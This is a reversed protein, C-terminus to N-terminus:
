PSRVNRLALSCFNGGDHRMGTQSTYIGYILDGAQWCSSSARERTCCGPGLLELNNPKFCFSATTISWQVRSSCQPALFWTLTSLMSPCTSWQKISKPEMQWNWFCFEREEPSGNALWISILQFRATTERDRVSKSTNPIPLSVWISSMSWISFVASSKICYFPNSKRFFVFLTVQLVYNETLNIPLSMLNLQAFDVLLWQSVVFEMLEHSQSYKHKSSFKHVLFDACPDLVKM